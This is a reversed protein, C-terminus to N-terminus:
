GENTSTRAGPRKWGLSHFVRELMAIAEGNRVEDRHFRLQKWGLLTASNYKKADEKFGEPSAHRGTLVIATRYGKEGRGKPILAKTAVLGEFEAYLKHEPWAFDFRWQRGIELAFRYQRHPEPLRHARIQFALAEEHEDRKAKANARRLRDVIAAAENM